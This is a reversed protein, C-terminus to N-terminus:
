APDFEKLSENSERTAVRSLENSRTIDSNGVRSSPLVLTPLMEAVVRLEDVYTALETSLIATMGKQVQTDLSLDKPQSQTRPLLSPCRWRLHIKASTINRSRGLAWLWALDAM